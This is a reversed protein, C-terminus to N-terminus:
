APVDGDDDAPEFYSRGSGVALTDVWGDLSALLEQNGDQKHQQLQLAFEGDRELLEAIGDADAEERYLGYGLKELWLANMVQEFQGHLPVTLLPKGLYVCEGMLSFGGGAIVARSSALDDVFGQQSFPRFVLNGEVVDQKLDRRMGYVLFELDPRARMADLLAEHSGGTQYVLVHDGREANDHAALIEPRLIPPVLTTRDKRVPPYFFTTVFYQAAGPIKAKVIM